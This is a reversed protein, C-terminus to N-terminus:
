RPHGYGTTLWSLKLFLVFCYSCQLNGSQNVGAPKECTVVELAEVVVELLLADGDPQEAVKVDHVEVLVRIHRLLLPNVAPFVDRTLVSTRKATHYM